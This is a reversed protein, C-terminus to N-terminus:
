PNHKKYTEYDEFQYDSSGNYDIERAAEFAERAKAEAYLEGAENIVIQKRSESTKSHFMFSSYDAWNIFGYKVAVQDKAEQLTM